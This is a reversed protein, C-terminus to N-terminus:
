RVLAIKRRMTGTGQAEILVLYGGSAVWAGAGNRGDWNWSNLGTAGGTAGSAFTEERVLAGGQSFIRLTM